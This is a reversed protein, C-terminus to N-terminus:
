HKERSLPSPLAFIEPDAPCMACCSEDETHLFADLEADSCDPALPTYALYPRWAAGLGYKADPLQLYAVAPCKWISGQFLQHCHKAVCREWSRRPQRDDFPQMAAGYGRYRRTWTGHSPRYDVCIGYRRVWGHLLTIVPELKERYAPSMHHISVSLRANGARALAAPLEPHRHLLFGNSVLELPTTPWHRRILDVLGALQPHIAPEGGLLAFREPRLRGSWGSMWADADAVSVIGGHGQDSFHSCGECTLNCAHTAHLELARIVRM